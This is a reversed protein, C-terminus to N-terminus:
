EHLAPVFPSAPRAQTVSGLRSSPPTAQVQEPQVAFLQPQPAISLKQQPPEEQWVQLFLQFLSLLVQPLTFLRRPAQQAEGPDGRFHLTKNLQDEPPSRKREPRWASSGPQGKGPCNIIIDVM